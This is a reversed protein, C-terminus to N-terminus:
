RKRKKPIYEEDSSSSGPTPEKWQLGSPTMTALVQTTTYTLPDELRFSIVDITPDFTLRLPESHEVSPPVSASADM